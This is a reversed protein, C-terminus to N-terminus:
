RRYVSARASMPRGRSFVDVPRLTQVPRPRETRGVTARGEGGGMLVEICADVPDSFENKLPEDHYTPSGSVKKRQYVYAGAMATTLKPCGKQDFVIKPQGMPAEGLMRSMTELRITRRNGKDAKRINMGNKAWIAFATNDDTESRKNDGSPDGWFHIPPADPTFWHPFRRALFAKFTPAFTEASTNLATLEAYVFWRGSINQMVVGAPRRGFDLGVHLPYDPNPQLAHKAIHFDRVFMPFVPLGAQQILVRNMLEADIEDKTRGGLLARVAKEGMIRLNEAAPNIDYSMVSGKADMREVFWAPQTFFEWTEPRIHARRESETWDEPPPADGRMIPIWHGLPPANMDLQLFKPGDPVPYYGTRSLLTVIFKRSYFQAENVWAGTYERSMLSPIDSDGEFSEFHFDAEVDGLRIEHVYPQSWYFRGYPKEPFWHLWTKLTSAELDPYSNRVILWRSRRKGTHDRPVSMAAEWLRMCSAVSTGSRIPGQICAVERGLGNAIADPAYPNSALYRELMEGDPKYVRQAM